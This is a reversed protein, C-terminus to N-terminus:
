ATVGADYFYVKDVKTRAGTDLHSRTPRGSESGVHVHVYIVDPEMEIRAVDKPNYGLAKCVETSLERVLKRM